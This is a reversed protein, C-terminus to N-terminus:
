SASEILRIKMKQKNQCTDVVNESRNSINSYPLMDDCLPGCQQQYSMGSTCSFLNYSFFHFFCGDMSPITWLWLQCKLVNQNKLNDVIRNSPLCDAENDFGRCTKIGMNTIQSDDLKWITSNTFSQHTGYKPLKRLYEFPIHTKCDTHSLYLVREVATTVWWLAISTITIM